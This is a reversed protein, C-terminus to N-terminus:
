WLYLFRYSKRPANKCRLGCAKRSIWELCIIVSLVGSTVTRLSSSETNAVFQFGREAAPLCDVLYIM